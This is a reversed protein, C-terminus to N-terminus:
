RASVLHLGLSESRQELLAIRGEYERALNHHVASVAPHIALNEAAREEALRRRFYELDKDM